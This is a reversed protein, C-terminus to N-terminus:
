DRRRRSRQDGFNLSTNGHFQDNENEEKDSESDQRETAPVVAAFAEVGPILLRDRRRVGRGCDVVVARSDNGPGNDNVQFTYM